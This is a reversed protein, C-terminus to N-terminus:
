TTLRAVILLFGAASFGLTLYPVTRIYLDCARELM